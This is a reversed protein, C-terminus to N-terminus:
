CGGCATVLFSTMSMFCELSVFAVTLNRQVKPVAKSADRSTAPMARATMSVTLGGGLSYSMQRLQPVAPDQSVRVLVAVRVDPVDEHAHSPTARAYADGHTNFWPVPSCAPFAGYGASIRGARSARDHHRQLRANRDLQIEKRFYRSPYVVRSQRLSHARNCKSKM